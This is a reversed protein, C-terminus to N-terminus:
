GCRALDRIQWSVTESSTFVNGTNQRVRLKMKKLNVFARWEEENDRLYIWGM